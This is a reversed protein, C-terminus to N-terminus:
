KSTRSREWEIKDIAVRQFDNCNLFQNLDNEKETHSTGSPQKIPGNSNSQWDIKTKM